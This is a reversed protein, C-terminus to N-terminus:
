RCSPSTVQSASPCPAASLPCQARAHQQCRRPQQERQRQVAPEGLIQTSTDQKSVDKLMRPLLRYQDFARRNEGVSWQSNAGGAYYDFVMQPLKQKALGELEDLNIFSAM